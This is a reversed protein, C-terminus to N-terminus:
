YYTKSMTFEFDDRELNKIVSPQVPEILHELNLESLSTETWYDNNVKLIPQEGIPIEFLKNIVPLKAEGVVFTSERSEFQISSFQKEKITKTSFTIEPVKLNFEITYDDLETTSNNTVQAVAGLGSLVFIIIVFISTIKKM